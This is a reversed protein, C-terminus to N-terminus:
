ISIVGINIDLGTRKGWVGSQNVWNSGENPYTNPMECKVHGSGFELNM